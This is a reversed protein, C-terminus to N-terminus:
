LLGDRSILGFAIDTGRKIARQVYGPTPQQTKSRGANLQEIYPANNKIYIKDSLKATRAVARIRGIAGRGTPDLFSVPDDLPANVSPRWNARAYGTLVPTDAVVEEGIEEALSEMLRELGLTLKDTVGDLRAELTRLQRNSPVSAM